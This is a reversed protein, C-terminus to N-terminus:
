GRVLWSKGGRAQRPATSYIRRWARRLQRASAFGVREAVGEMDLSTQSILENALAVRLRNSYDKISMGVNQSFLRSLHRSGAGAVKALRSL